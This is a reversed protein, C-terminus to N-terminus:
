AHLTILCFCFDSAHQLQKEIAEISFCARLKAVLALLDM